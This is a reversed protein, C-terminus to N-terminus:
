VTLDHDHLWKHAIHRYCENAVDRMASSVSVAGDLNNVWERSAERLACNDIAGQQMLHENNKIIEVVRPLDDTISKIFENWNKM